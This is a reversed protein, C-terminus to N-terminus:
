PLDYHSLIKFLIHIHEYSFWKATCCFNVCYQEVKYKLFIFEAQSLKHYKPERQLEKCNTIQTYGQSKLKTQGSWKVFLFPSIWLKLPSLIGCISALSM